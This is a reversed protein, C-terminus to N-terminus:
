QGLRYFQQTGSISNTVTNQGNVIAPLPSVASWVAPPALNSTSQLTFRTANTPWSLIVNAGASTITLQPPGVPLSISFITGNGGIGGRTATGYLTNGYLILGGQPWGGDSNTGVVLGRGDTYDSPIISTFSHLVRFGTGDTNVAFM